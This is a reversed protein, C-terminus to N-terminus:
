VNRIRRKKGFSPLLGNEETGHFLYDHLVQPCLALSFLHGAVVLIVALPILKFSCASNNEGFLRGLLYM